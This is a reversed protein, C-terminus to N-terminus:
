VATHPVYGLHTRARVPDREIDCGCVRVAGRSAQIIGAVIRLLTTKGSGNGGTLVIVEGPAGRLHVGDLVSRGGLHKHVGDIELM